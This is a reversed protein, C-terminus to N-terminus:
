LGELKKVMVLLRRRLSEWPESAVGRGDDEGDLIRKVGAITAVVGHDMGRWWAPHAADTGDCEPDDQRVAARLEAIEAEMAEYMPMANTKTSPMPAYRDKWPKIM